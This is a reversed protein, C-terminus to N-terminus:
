STEHARLHTYSVADDSYFAHGRLGFALLRGSDPARSIGFFTGPYPSALTTWSAGADRSRFLLGSEAAIWVSGQEDGVVGNLHLQQPNELAEDAHRWNAGGDDTLLLTGFAGVAFGHLADRFWVDLLPPTQLPAELAYEADEIDLSLEELTALLRARVAADGAEALSQELATQRDTLSQLRTRTYGAQLALGDYQRSWDMGGNNTVLVLGDHGVAWGLKETSFHVATLMQRTPVRAQQWGAEADDSVLVHGRDGVAVLRPGVAAIDLLLSRHALPMMLATEAHTATNPWSLLLLLAIVIRCPARPM